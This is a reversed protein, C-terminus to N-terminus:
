GSAGGFTYFIEVMKFVSLMFGILYTALVGLILGMVLLVFVAGLFHDELFQWLTM